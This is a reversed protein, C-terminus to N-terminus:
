YMEIMKELQGEIYYLSKCLSDLYDDNLVSVDENNLIDHALLPIKKIMIYLEKARYQIDQVNLLVRVIDSKGAKKTNRVIKLNNM